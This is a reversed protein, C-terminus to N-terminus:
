KKELHKKLIAARKMPDNYDKVDKGLIPNYTSQVNVMSSKLFKGYMNAVKMNDVVSKPLPSGSIPAYIVSCDSKIKTNDLPNETEYEPIGLLKFLNNILYRFLIRESYRWIFIKKFFNKKQEDYNPLNLTNNIDDFLINILPVDKTIYGSLTWTPQSIYSYITFSHLNVPIKPINWRRVLTIMFLITILIPLLFGLPMLGTAAAAELVLTIVNTWNGKKFTESGIIAKQNKIPYWIFCREGYIFYKQNLAEQINQPRPSADWKETVKKTLIDTRDNIGAFNDFSGMMDANETLYQLADVDIANIATELSEKIINKDTKKGRVMSIAKDVFWNTPSTALVSSVNWGGKPLDDMFIHSKLFIYDEVAGQQISTSNVILSIVSNTAANVVVNNDSFYNGLDYTYFDWNVRELTPDGIHTIFVGLLDFIHKLSKNVKEKSTLGFNWAQARVTRNDSFLENYKRYLQNSISAYVKRKKSTKPFSYMLGLITDQAKSLYQALLYAANYIDSDGSNKSDILAQKIRTVAEKDAEIDEDTNPNFGEEDSGQWKEAVYLDKVNSLSKFNDVLLKMPIHGMERKGSKALYQELYTHLKKPDKEEPIEIVSKDKSNLAHWLLFSISAADLIPEYKKLTEQEEANGGFNFTMKRAFIVEVRRRKVRKSHQRQNKIQDLLFQFNVDEKTPSTNVEPAQTGKLTRIEKMYDAKDLNDASYDVKIWVDSISPHTINLTPHKDLYLDKHLYYKGEFLIFPIKPDRIRKFNEWKIKFEERDKFQYKPSSITSLYIDRNMEVNDKIWKYNYRFFLNNQIAVDAMATQANKVVRAVDSHSYYKENMENSIQAILTPDNALDMEFYKYPVEIHLVKKSDNPECTNECWKEKGKEETEDDIVEVVPSDSKNIQKPCADIPDKTPFKIFTSVNMWILESITTAPPLDMLIQRDFRRLIAADLKWPYNTNAIITVNSQSAVGDMQQLLTNVSNAMFQDGGMRDGAISDFEDIFIVSVYKKSGSEQCECAHKSACKWAEVIRKETEGVYKGKLEAGTLAYFLIGVDKSMEKALENVAAKILFTKGTGPPGFLLIGKSIKPYLNPFKLPKILSDKLVKQEQKSGALDDFFICDGGSFVVPTVNTCSADFEDKDDEKKPRVKKIKEQLQEVNGLATQYKDQLSKYFQQCERSVSLLGGSGGINDTLENLCHMLSAASTFSMLAGDLEGISSYFEGNKYLQCSEEIMKTIKDTPLSGSKAQSIADKRKSKEEDAKKSVALLFQDITTSEEWLKLDCKLDEFDAINSNKLDDDNYQSRILTIFNIAVSCAEISQLNEQFENKAQISKSYSLCVKQILESLLGIDPGKQIPTKKFM